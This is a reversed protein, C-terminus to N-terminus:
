IASRIRDYSVACATAYLGLLSSSGLSFGPPLALIKAKVDAGHRAHAESGLPPDEDDGDDDEAARRKQDAPPHRSRDEEEEEEEEDVEEAVRVPGARLAM